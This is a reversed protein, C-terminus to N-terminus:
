QLEEPLGDVYRGTLVEPSFRGDVSFTAVDEDPEDLASSGVSLDVFGAVQDLSRLLREVGPAHSTLMQGTATFSGVTAAGTTDDTAEEGLHVNLTDLQTDDPMVAAVDQLIGAVSAEGGLAVQLTTDMEERQQALDRFEVLDDVQRQLHATEDQEVALQAQADNVRSVQWVYVGALLLVLLVFGGVAGQRQRTAVQRARTERPLLNVRVSM